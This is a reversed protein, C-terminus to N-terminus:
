VRDAKRKIITDIGRLFGRMQKVPKFPILEIRNGYQIVQVKQGPRMGLSKRMTRPIAITYKPSVLVTEM